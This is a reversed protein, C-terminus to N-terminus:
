RAGKKMWRSFGSLDGFGWVRYGRRIVELYEPAPSGVSESRLMYTQVARWRRTSAFVRIAVREYIFPVGECRDLSAIAHKDLRYLVGPVVSGDDPRVTAVAGNWRASHGGFELRYDPLLALGDVDLVGCRRQMQMVDLNSGYAFVVTM